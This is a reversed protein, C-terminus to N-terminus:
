IVIQYPRDVFRGPEYREGNLGRTSLKLTVMQRGQYGYVGHVLALTTLLRADGRFGHLAVKHAKCGERARALACDEVAHDGSDFVYLRERWIRLTGKVATLKGLADGLDAAVPSVAGFMGDTSTMVSAYRHELRHMKARVFGTILSAIPPHYLGGARWDFDSDPNTAIWEM